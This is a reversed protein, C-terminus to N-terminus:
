PLFLDSDSTLDADEGGTYCLRQCDHPKSYENRRFITIGVFGISPLFLEGAPMACQKLITCHHYSFVVFEHVGLFLNIMKKRGLLYVM